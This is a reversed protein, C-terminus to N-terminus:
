ITEDLVDQYSFLKKDALMRREFTGIETNGYDVPYGKRIEITNFNKNFYSFKGSYMMVRGEEIKDLEYSRPRAYNFWNCIANCYGSDQRSKVPIVLNSYDDAASKLDIHTSTYKIADVRNDQKVYQLLLQPIIYEPKFADDINKVKISCAAILPWVRTSALMFNVKEGVINPYNDAYWNVDLFRNVTLDLYKLERTNQFRMAQIENLSKRGLEEWCVYLSNGLYLSPYGPISYRQSTVKGRSEFPIHLLQKALIGYADRKNRIRYFSENKSFVKSLQNQLIHSEKLGTEFLKYSRAVDGEYYAGVADLIGKILKRISDINYRIGAETTKYESHNLDKRISEIEKEFSELLETLYKEFDGKYIFPPKFHRNEFLSSISQSM